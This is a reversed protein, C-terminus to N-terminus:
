NKRPSNKSVSHHSVYHGILWGLSSGLLVDSPFHNLGGVRSVSIAAAVSYGTIGIWKKDPYQDAIAAALAWSTMAHGSPFSKGGDWFGGDGALKNPRERNTVAKLADVILASHVVAELGISGARAARENNALRGLAMLAVPAAIMPVASGAYSITRSPRRLGPAENAEGSINTDTLLLVGVGAGLPVLWKADERKIHLPSTWLGREQELFHKAFATLASPSSSDPQQAFLRSQFSMILLFAAVTRVKKMADPVDSKRM